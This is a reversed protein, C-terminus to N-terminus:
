AEEFFEVRPMGIVGANKMAEHLAPSAVMAEAEAMSAFSHLVLVLNADNKSRYVSQATVGAADQVGKFADYVKRWAAYDSVTHEVVLLAM